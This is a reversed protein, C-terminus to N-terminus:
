QLPRLILNRFQEPIGKSSINDTDHIAAIVHPQPSPRSTALQVAITSFFLSSDSRDSEGRRFFFGAGLIGRADSQSAITRSITSKGTGAMGNLWYVRHDDRNKAWSMIDELLQVRTNPLCLPAHRDHASDYMAGHSVALRKIADYRIEHDVRSVTEAIHRLGDQVLDVVRREREVKIPLVQLLLAKAYAAAAM